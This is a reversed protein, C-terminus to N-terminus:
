VTESTLNPASRRARPKVGAVSVHAFIKAAQGQQHLLREFTIRMRSIQKDKTAASALLRCLADPKRDAIM